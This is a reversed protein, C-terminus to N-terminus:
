LRTPPTWMAPQTLEMAQEIPLGQARLDLNAVLAGFVATRVANEVQKRGAKSQHQRKLGPSNALWNELVREELGV